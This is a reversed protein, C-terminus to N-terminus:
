FKPPDPPSQQAVTVRSDALKTAIKLVFYSTFLHLATRTVRRHQDILLALSKVYRVYRGRPVLKDRSCDLCRIIKGDRFSACRSTSSRKRTKRSCLDAHHRHWSRVLIGRRLSPAPCLLLEHRSSSFAVLSEMAHICILRLGRSRQQPAICSVLILLGCRVPWLRGLPLVVIPQTAELRQRDTFGNKKAGRASRDLVTIRAPAHGLMRSAYM